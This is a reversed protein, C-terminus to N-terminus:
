KKYPKRGFYKLNNVVNGSCIFVINKYKLKPFHQHLEEELTSFIDTNYCSISYKILQDTTIFNVKIKRKVVNLEKVDKKELNNLINSLEKSKVLIPCDEFMGKIASINITAFINIGKIEKLEYCKYFM